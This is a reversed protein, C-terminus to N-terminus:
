DLNLLRKIPQFSRRHLPTIGHEMVAQIHQATPYGKHQAFGYHPYLVDWDIMMQDRTTKAIISAAMICTYRRDGKIKADAPVPLGSPIFAGDIYIHEPQCELALVARRMALLTAQHINLNDIEEVSAMGVAVAQAKTHICQALRSRVNASLQKSDALGAIREGLIVAAAVVPGALPGRGAEDVGALITM